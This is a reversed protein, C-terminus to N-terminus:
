EAGQSLVPPSIEGSLEEFTLSRRAQPVAVHELQNVLAEDDKFRLWVDKGKSLPDFPNRIWDPYPRSRDDMVVNNRVDVTFPSTLGGWRAGVLGRSGVSLDGAATQARAEFDDQITSEVAELVRMMQTANLPYITIFKGIQETRSEMEALALISKVIKHPVRNTLLTSVLKKYSEPFERNQISLGPPKVVHLKWGVDCGPNAYVLFLGSERM